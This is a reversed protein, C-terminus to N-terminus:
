GEEGGGRRGRQGPSVTGTHVEGHQLLGVATGPLEAIQVHVLPHPYISPRDQSHNHHVECSGDGEEKDTDIGGTDEM